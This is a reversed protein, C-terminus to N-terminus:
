WNLVAENGDSDTIKTIKGDNDFEFSYTLTSGDSFNEVVTGSELGSLDVSTAVKEETINLVQKFPVFAATISGAIIQVMFLFVEDGANFISCGQIMEGALSTGNLVFDVPVEQGEASLPVVVKVSGKKFAEKIEATDANHTSAGGTVPIASFGMEALNFVPLEASGGGSGGKALLEWKTTDGEPIVGVVPSVTNKLVYASGNYYVADRSLQGNKLSTYSTEANWEGKWVLGPEGNKGDEGNRVTAKQFTGDPNTVNITTGNEGIELDIYASGGSSGGGNEIQKELECIGEEIHNLHHGCLCQGDKFNQKEYAM